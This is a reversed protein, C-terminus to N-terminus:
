GLARKATLRLSADERSVKPHDFNLNGLKWSQLVVSTEGIAKPKVGGETAREITLVKGSWDLLLRDDSGFGTSDWVERPLRIITYFRDSRKADPISKVVVPTSGTKLAPAANRKPRQRQSQKSSTKTEAAIPAPEAESGAAQDLGQLRNLQLTLPEEVGIAKASPKTAESVPTSVTPISQVASAVERLSGSIAEASQAVLPALHTIAKIQQTGLTVLKDMQEAMLDMASRLGKLEAAIGTLAGEVEPSLASAPAIPRPVNAAPPGPTQVPKPRFVEAALAEPKGLHRALIDATDRSRKDAPVTQHGSNNGGEPSRHHRVEDRQRPQQARHPRALCASCLDHARDRALLWGRDKFYGRVFDDGVSTSSEYTDTKQCGSCRATFRYKSPAGGTRTIQPEFQRAIGPM